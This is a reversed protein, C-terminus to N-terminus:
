SLADASRISCVNGIGIGSVITGNVIELTHTCIPVHVNLTFVDSDYSRDSLHLAIVQMELSHRSFCFCLPRYLCLFFVLFLASLIELISFLCANAPYSARHAELNVRLQVEFRHKRDHGNRITRYIRNGRYLRYVLEYTKNMTEGRQARDKERERESATDMFYPKRRPAQVHRM